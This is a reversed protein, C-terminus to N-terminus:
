TKSAFSFKSSITCFYVQILSKCIGANPNRDVRYLLVANWQLQALIIASTKVPFETKKISANNTKKENWTTFLFNHGSHIGKTPIQTLVFILKLPFTLDFKITHCFQVVSIM